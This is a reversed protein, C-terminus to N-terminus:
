RSTRTSLQSCRCTLSAHRQVPELRARRKSGSPLLLLQCDPLVDHFVCRELWDGIGKSSGNRLHRFARSYRHQRRHHHRDAGPKEEVAGARLLLDPWLFFAIVNACILLKKKFGPLANVAPKFRPDNPAGYTEFFNFREQWKASYKGAGQTQDATSM